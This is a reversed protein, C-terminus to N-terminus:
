LSHITTVGLKGLNLIFLPPRYRKQSLCFLIDGPHLSVAKNQEPFCFHVAVGVDISYRNANVVNDHPVQSILLCSFFSEEDTHLPSIYNYTSTISAALKREDLTTTDNCYEKIKISSSPIGFSMFMKALYDVQNVM